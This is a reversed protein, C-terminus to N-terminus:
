KCRQVVMMTPSSAQWSCLALGVCTGLAAVMGCPVDAQFGTRPDCAACDLTPTEAEDVGNCDFDFPLTGPRRAGSIPGAQFGAGPHALPDEDACDPGPPSCTWSLYGDHDDDTTCGNGGSSSTSGTSSSAAHGGGSGSSSATSSGGAGSSSSGGTDGTVAVDPFGCAGAALAGGTFACGLALIITSRKM